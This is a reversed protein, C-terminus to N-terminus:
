ISVAIKKFFFFVPGLFLFNIIIIIFQTGISANKIFKGDVGFSPSLENRLTFCVASTISNRKNSFSESSCSICLRHKNNKKCHNGKRLIGNLSIDLKDNRFFVTYSKISYINRM